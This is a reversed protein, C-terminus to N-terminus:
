EEKDSDLENLYSSILEKIKLIAEDSDQLDKDIKKLIDDSYDKSKEM